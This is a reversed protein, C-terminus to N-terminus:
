EYLAWPQVERKVEMGDEEKNTEILGKRQPVDSNM